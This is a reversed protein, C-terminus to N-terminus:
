AVTLETWSITVNPNQRNEISGGGKPTAENAITAHRVSVRLQVEPQWTKRSSLGLQACKASVSETLLRAQDQHVPSACVLSERSAHCLRRRNNTLIADPMASRHRPRSRKITSIRAITALTGPYVFPEEAAIM